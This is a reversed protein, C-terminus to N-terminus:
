RPTRQAVANLVAAVSHEFGGTGAVVVDAFRQSPWVYLAAMPRVTDEYQRIVSDRTRGRERTDRELRRSFCIEDPTDVYVLLNMRARVSPHHLALIGEIIVFPAPEIRRSYPARTHQDFRYVPEDVPEGRALAHLHSLFLEWDLADPHDFNVRERQALSLHDLVRYYSDLSIVAAPAPLVAAVHAALESKGSGSAGAIGIFFPQM